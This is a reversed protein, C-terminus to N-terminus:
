SAERADLMWRCEQLARRTQAVDEQMQAILAEVRDFRLEDRLRRAFELRVERGYLDGSFDLLFAEVIRPGPGFTPRVGINAAAPHRVGNVLPM